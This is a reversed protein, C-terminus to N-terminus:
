SNNVEVAEKSNGIPITFQCNNDVHALLLYGGILLAAKVCRIFSVVTALESQVYPKSRETNPRRGQTSAGKKTSLEPNFRPRVDAFSARLQQSVECRGARSGLKPLPRSWDGVHVPRQDRSFHFWLPGQEQRAHRGYRPCRLM